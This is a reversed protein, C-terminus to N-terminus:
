RVRHERSRRDAMAEGDDRSVLPLEAIGAGLNDIRPRARRSSVTAGRRLGGEKACHAINDAPLAWQARAADPTWRHGHKLIYPVAGHDPTDNRALRNLDDRDLPNGILSYIQDIALRATPKPFWVTDRRRAAGPWRRVRGSRTM